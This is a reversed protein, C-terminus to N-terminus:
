KLGLFNLRFSTIHGIDGWYSSIYSSILNLIVFSQKNCQVIKICPHSIKSEIKNLKFIFYIGENIRGSIRYHKKKRKVM